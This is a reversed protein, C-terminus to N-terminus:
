EYIKCLEDTLFLMALFTVYHVLGLSNSDLHKHLIIPGIESSALSFLVPGQTARRVAITSM